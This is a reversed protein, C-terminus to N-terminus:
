GPQSIVIHAVSLANISVQVLSANMWGLSEVGVLWEFDRWVQILYKRQFFAKRELQQKFLKSLHSFETLLVLINEVGFLPFLVFPKKTM